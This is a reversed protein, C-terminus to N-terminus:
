KKKLVYKNITSVGDDNIQYRVRLENNEDLDCGVENIMGNAELSMVHDIFRAKTFQKETGYLSKLAKMIQNVDGQQNDYLYKLVATRVPLLAM